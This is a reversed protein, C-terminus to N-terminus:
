TADACGRRGGDGAAQGADAPRRLPWRRGHAGGPGSACRDDVSDGHSCGQARQLAPGRHGCATAPRHPRAQYILGSLDSLVCQLAADSQWRDAHHELLGALARVLWAEDESSGLRRYVRESLLMSPKAGLATLSALEDAALGGQSRLPGLLLAASVLAETTAATGLKLGATLAPHVSKAVKIDLTAEAPLSWIASGLALYAGRRIFPKGETMAKVLAAVDPASGSALLAALHPVVARQLLADAAPENTEKGLQGLATALVSASPPLAGLMAFLAVRQDASSTKGTRIPASLETCATELAAASSHQALAAFLAVAGSRCAANPSRSNNILTTTLKGQLLASTDQQWASFFAAAVARTLQSADAASASPLAHEPQRVLMKDIVPMITSSLEAPTVFDHIFEDLAPQTTLATM